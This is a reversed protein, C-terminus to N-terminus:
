ALTLPGVLGIVPWTGGKLGLHGFKRIMVADSARLQLVDELGAPVPRKPGFFYGLLVGKPNCRAIVGVGFEETRLPVAFWLGETLQLRKPVLSYHRIAPTRGAPDPM